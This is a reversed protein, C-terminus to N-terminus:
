RCTFLGHNETMVFAGDRAVIAQAGSRVDDVFADWDREISPELAYRLRVVEDVVCEPDTVVLRTSTDEVLTM